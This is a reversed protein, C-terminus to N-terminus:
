SLKKYITEPVDTLDIEVIRTEPYNKKLIEIPDLGKTSRLIPGLLITHNSHSDMLNMLSDYCSVKGAVKIGPYKDLMAAIGDLLIDSSEAILISTEKM